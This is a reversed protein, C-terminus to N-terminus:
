NLVNSIKMMLDNKEIPKVVYGDFNVGTALEVDEQQTFATVAIVPIDSDISKIKRTTEYGNMAPMKLDMLVVNFDSNNSFIQVAEFGDRAWIIECNSTSLLEKVYLYNIEDDEVALIKIKKAFQNPPPDITRTETEYLFEVPVSFSFVSGMGSQSDFWIKGKLFEINGKSIALGLGSGGYSRSLGIESQRFRDFIIKKESERIGIGTDTVSFVLTTGSLSMNVLVSGKPTFKIANSILNYLVQKIKGQDSRIVINGAKNVITFELGKERASKSFTIDLDKMMQDAACDSINLEITGTEIKSIDILDNVLTALQQTCSNIIELYEQMKEYDGYPQQLLNVFGVIGNMPTRIEHSINQIFATKLRDSEEAKEKAGLLEENIRAIQLNNRNLEENKEKLSIENKALKEEAKIREQLEQNIRDFSYRYSRSFLIIATLVLVLILTYDRSYDLPGQMLPVINNKMQLIGLIWISIISLVTMIFAVRLGTLLTALFIILIYGVIAVDQIGGGIYAMDTLAAWSLLLFLFGSLFVMDKKLIYYVAVFIFELIIKIYDSPFISGEQYIKLILFPPLICISVLLIVNLYATILKKGELDNKISSSILGSVLKKFFRM